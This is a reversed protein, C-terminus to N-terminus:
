LNISLAGLVYMDYAQIGKESRLHVDWVEEWFGLRALIAAAQGRPIPQCASIVACTLLVRNFLNQGKLNKFELISKYM